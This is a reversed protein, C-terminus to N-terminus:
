INWAIIKTEEKISEPEDAIISQMMIEAYCYYGYKVIIVIILKMFFGEFICVKEYRFQEKMIDLLGIRQKYTAMHEIVTTKLRHTM